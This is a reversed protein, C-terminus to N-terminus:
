LNCYKKHRCFSARYNFKMKCKQCIYSKGCDNSRHSKLTRYNKFTKKCIPCICINTWRLKINKSYKIDTKNSLFKNVRAQLNEEDDESYEEEDKELKQLNHKIDLYEENLKEKKIFKRLNYKVGKNITQVNDLILICWFITILKM